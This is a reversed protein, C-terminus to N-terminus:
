QPQITQLFTSANAPSFHAHIPCFFLAFVALCIVYRYSGFLHDWFMTYQGYNSTPIRHHVDHDKSDFLVVKQKNFWPMSIVVDHRTHSFGALLGGIVVFGLIAVLHIEKFVFRSGIYISLLHNYEGLVFEVPHANVADLNARSPAKQRHHHKHIYPYVSQLHLFWHLITYFFDFIIFLTPIPVVVNWFTMQTPDWVINPQEYAFKMYFYMFPVTNVKSFLIYQVDIM